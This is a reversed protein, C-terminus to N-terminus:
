VGGRIESIPIVGDRIAMCVLHTTNKAGAAKHMSFLTNKVTKTAIGLRVGIDENTFGNGVLHIIERRRTTWEM